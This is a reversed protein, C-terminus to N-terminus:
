NKVPANRNKLAKYRDILMLLLSDALLTGVFVILNLYSAKPPQGTLGTIDSFFRMITGHFILTILTRQGFWELFRSVREFRILGHSIVVLSYAGFFGYVPAAVVELLGHGYYYFRGAALTGMRYAYIQLSFSFVFFVLVNLIKWLPKTGSVNLIGSTKLLCGSLMMAAVEPAASLFWPLRINNEYLVASVALLLLAVSCLASNKRYVKPAIFIFVISGAFLAKLFWTPGVAQGILTKSADFGLVAALPDTIWFGIYSNVAQAFSMESRSIMYIGLIVWIILTYKFLPLIIQKIKKLIGQGFTEGKDRYNYGSFVFFVPMAYGMIGLMASSAINSKINRGGASFLTVSHLILVLIMLIGKAIDQERMRRKDM